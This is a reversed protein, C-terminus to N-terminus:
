AQAASTVPEVVRTAPLHAGYYAVAAGWSALRFMWRLWLLVQAVVFWIFITAVTHQPMLNAFVVYVAIAITTLVGIVAYIFAVRGFHALVFGAAHGFAALVSRHDDIVIDAKTYEVLMNIGLVTLVLLAVRLWNLYFHGAEANVGRFASTLWRELPGNFFWFAAFYMVSAIVAIRAFRGFFKGVGRGFAHMYAGGGRAFVEFAGASLVTNLGLFLIGAYVITISFSKLFDAKAISFETMWAASFSEALERGVASNGVHEAIAAHMPAALAAALLLNCGFFLVVMWKSHFSAALGKAIASSPKM